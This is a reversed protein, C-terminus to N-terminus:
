DPESSKWSTWTVLKQDKHKYLTNTLCMKNLVCFQLLKEGSENISGISFRGCAGELNRYANCDVKASFYGLIMKM